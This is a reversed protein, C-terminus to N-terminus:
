AQEKTTAEATRQQEQLLKVEDTIGGTVVSVEKRDNADGATNASLKATLADLAEALNKDQAKRVSKETIIQTNLNAELDNLQRALKDNDAGSGLDANQIKGQVDYLGNALKELDDVLENVREEQEINSKNIISIYVERSESIAKRLTEMNGDVLESFKDVRQDLSQFNTLMSQEIADRVEKMKQLARQENSELLKYLESRYVPLHGEIIEFRAYVDRKMNENIILHKKFQETRKSCM